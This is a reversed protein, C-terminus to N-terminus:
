DRTNEVQKPVSPESEPKERTKYLMNLGVIIIFVSFMRKLVMNPINFVIQSGILAGVVGGAAMFGVMGFNVVIDPNLKYRIAGVLAMPIIVFLATGQANKQALSFGLVLIPHLRNEHLAM